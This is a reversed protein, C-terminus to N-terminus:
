DITDPNIYEEWYWFLQATAEVDLLCYQAIESSRHERFLIPVDFGTTGSEKPSEIGFAKCYFHLPFNKRTAGFFSFQDALDLHPISKYRYGMVDVSPRLKNIASRLILFPADFTRGNFTIFQNYNAFDKWLESLLTREDPVFFFEADDEHVDNEDSGITYVRARNTDPNQLAVCVVQGTLPYFSTHTKLREEDEPTAAWKLWYEKQQDDLKQFEIGVTEIDYVVRNVGIM